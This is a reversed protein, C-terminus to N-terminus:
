GATVAKVANARALYSIIGQDNPPLQLRLTEAFDTQRQEPLKNIANGLQGHNSTQARWFSDFSTFTVAIDISRTEIDRFGAHEFNSHLAQLNSTQNGPLDDVQLGFRKMGTRFPGTPSLDNEFDWVYGAVTAGPRAVRAMEHLAQDLKPVFNLVLASTVVDFTHRQFPLRQVDAVQYRIRPHGNWLRAYEIQAPENDVAMVSVAPRRKAISRTFAGTGCGADLWHKGEDTSIWDLFVMGVAASRQGMFRNYAAANAFLPSSTNDAWQEAGVTPAPAIHNELKAM